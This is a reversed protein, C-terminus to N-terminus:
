NVPPANSLCPLRAVYQIIKLSIHNASMLFNAFSVCVEFITVIVFRIM